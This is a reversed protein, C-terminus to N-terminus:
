AAAKRAAYAARKRANVAERDRLRQRALYARTRARRCERCARYIRGDRPDTVMVLNGGTLLHGSDCREKAANHLAGGAPRKQKARRRLRESTSMAGYIATDGHPLMVAWARCQELVPCRKCM